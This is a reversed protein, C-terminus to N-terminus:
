KAKVHEFEVPWAMNVDNLLRSTQVGNLEDRFAVTVKAKVWAIDEIGHRLALQHLYLAPISAATNTEISPALTAHRADAM